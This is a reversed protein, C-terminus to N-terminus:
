LKIEKNNGGKIMDMIDSVKAVLEEYDKFQEPHCLLGHLIVISLLEETTIGRYEFNTTFPFVRRLLNWEM